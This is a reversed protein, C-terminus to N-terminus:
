CSYPACDLIRSSPRSHAQGTLLTTGGLVPFSVVHNSLDLHLLWLVQKVDLLYAPFLREATFGGKGIEETLGPMSMSGARESMQPDCM